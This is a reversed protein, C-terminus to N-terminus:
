SGADQVIGIQVDSRLDADNAAPGWFWHSIHVDQLACHGTVQALM